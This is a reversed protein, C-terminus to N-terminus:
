HKDFEIAALLSCPSKDCKGTRCLTIENCCSRGLPWFLDNMKLVDYGSVRSIIRMAEICAERIEKDSNMPKRAKLDNKLNEDIVEVCGMRLLVRQMHYDMIPILNEPDKIKILGADCLLKLLFSIKKRQPDSFVKVTPLFEYFGSKDDNYLFGKSKGLLDTIRNRFHKNALKGIEIMQRARESLRDLTCINESHNKAFVDSLKEMLEEITSNSLFEPDTLEPTHKQINMFVYELYDWGFLNKKEDALNYTQHCIAVSFFYLRNRNEVIDDFKLFDRELFSQRFKLSIIVEGIDASKTKNLIVKPM